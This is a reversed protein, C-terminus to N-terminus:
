DELDDKFVIQIPQNTNLDVTKRDGFNKDDRNAAERNLEQVLLKQADVFGKPLDMMPLRGNIVDDAYQATKRAVALAESRYLEASEARARASQALFDPYKSKWTRLTEITPMGTKRCIERESKGQRILECIDDVLAKSYKTPRGTKKPASKSSTM